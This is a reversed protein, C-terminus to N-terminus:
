DYRYCLYENETDMVMSINMNPIVNMTSLQYSLTTDVWIGDAPKTQTTYGGMATVGTVRTAPDMAQWQAWAKDVMGHHLFFIPDGPSSLIDSMVAGIADHGYAHPGPFICNLMDGYKAHSNCVDIFNQSIVKSFTEDVARSLCHPTNRSGPGIHLETDAFAGDTVCAGYGDSTKLRAAGFYEPTFMPANQFNGADLTENWYPMPGNYNCDNKLVQQHAYLFYRHWPLFQGVGHIETNLQQHLSQLDEHRNTAGPMGNSPTRYLCAEAQVYALQETALM